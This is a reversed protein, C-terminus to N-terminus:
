DFYKRETLIDDNHDPRHDRVVIVDGSLLDHLEEASRDEMMVVVQGPESLTAGCSLDPGGQRVCQVHCQGIKTCIPGTSSSFLAARRKFKKVRRM